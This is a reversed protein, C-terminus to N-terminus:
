TLYFSSKKLTLLIVLFYGCAELLMFSIKPKKVQEKEVIKYNNWTYSFLLVPTTSTILSGAIAVDEM